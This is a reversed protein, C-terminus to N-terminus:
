DEVGVMEALVPLTAYAGPEVLWTALETSASGAFRFGCSKADSREGKKTGCDASLSDSVVTFNALATSKSQGLQLFSTNTPLLGTTDADNHVVPSTIQTLLSLLDVYLSQSGVLSTEDHEGALRALRLLTIRRYTNKETKLAKTSSLPLSLVERDLRSASGNRERFGIRSFGWAFNGVLFVLELCEPSETNSTRILSM